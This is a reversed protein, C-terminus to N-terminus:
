DFSKQNSIIHKRVHRAARNAMEENMCRVRPRKIVDRLNLCIEIYHQARRSKHGSSTSPQVTVPQCSM